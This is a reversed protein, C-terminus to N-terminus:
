RSALWDRVEPVRAFNLSFSSGLDRLASFAAENIGAENSRFTETPTKGYSTAVWDAIYEGDATLLRMNYKIWVEFMDLKTKYPLALQFEEIAPAFVADVGTGKAEEMSDVIVIQEFMGPLIANFLDIHSQGSHIDFEEKGTETYEIYSFDRLAEDYYVAIKLPLKGVNPTPYTGTVTVNNVGCAALIGLMAAMM